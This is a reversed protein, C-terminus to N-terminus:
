IAIVECHQMRPAGHLKSWEHVEYLFDLDQQRGRYDLTIQVHLKEHKKTFNNSQYQDM